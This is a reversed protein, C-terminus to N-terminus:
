KGIDGVTVGPLPEHTKLDRIQVIFPHPGYDKGNSILRAMVMAHNAAVGLGGIWWKSSTLTPSNIVFEQTNVDYTATTELGRVNSGHGLKNYIIIILTSYISSESKKKGAEQHSYNKENRM